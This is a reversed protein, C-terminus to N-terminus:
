SRLGEQDVSSFNAESLTGQFRESSFNVYIHLRGNEAIEYVTSEVHSCLLGAGVFRMPDIHDNVPARNLDPRWVRRRFIPTVLDDVEKHNITKIIRGRWRLMLGEIALVIGKL